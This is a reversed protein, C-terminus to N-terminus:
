INLTFAEEFNRLNYHKADNFGLIKRGGPKRNDVDNKLPHFFLGLKLLLYFIFLL